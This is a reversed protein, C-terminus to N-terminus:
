DDSTDHIVLDPGERQFRNQWQYRDYGYGVALLVFCVLAVWEWPFAGLLSPVISFLELTFVLLTVGSLFMFYRSWEVTQSHPYIEVTEVRSTPRVTRAEEDFEVYGHRDLKPLHTQILSNRVSRRRGPREDDGPPVNEWNAIQEVLEDVEIRGGRAKLYYIVYRRRVNRLVDFVDSERTTANAQRDSM